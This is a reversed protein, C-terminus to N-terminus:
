MQSRAKTQAHMPRAYLPMAGREHVHRNSGTQGMPAVSVRVMNADGFISSLNGQLRGGIAKEAADISDHMSGFETFLIGIVAGETYWGKQDIERTSAILVSAIQRAMTLREDPGNASVDILALLLPRGSRLSRATERDLLQEFAEQRCLASGVDHQREPFTYVKKM